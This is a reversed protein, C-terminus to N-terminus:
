RLTELRAARVAMVRREGAPAHWAVVPAREVAVPRARLHQHAPAPAAVSRVAAHPPPGPPGRVLRVPQVHRPVPAAQATGIIAPLHAMVPEREVSPVNEREFGADLLEAMHIDRETGNSAGLVVGILRVGDRQASTILNCGAAQTYGTKLGDAGPYTQLMHDHNPIMRGHWVFGPTSFYPYDDPFDTIVHRALIALDRATSVMDPEPLGSANRFVTHTMGLARARLTMMEAFRDEDGGLLEGLASAADNASKTVLGLIAEEVTLHMGPLLGLKSPSMSAAHASVPVEDSLAIRHDRIAEFTLYLTMLKALSAPYRPEDENSASLVAGSGADMVISAYRESGIQAWAAFPTGVLFALCSSLGLLLAAAFGRWNGQAM